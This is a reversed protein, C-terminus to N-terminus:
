PSNRPIVGALKTIAASAGGTAASLLGGAVVGEGVQMLKERTFGDKKTAPQMAGATGGAIGGGAAGVGGKELLSMGAKVEPGVVGGIYNVPSLINGAFRAWDMSTNSGRNQQIEAERQQMQENKGGEPLKRVLGGSHEAVLNNLENLGREVRAPLINAILQGGGEVPDMMGTGIEGATTSKDKTKEAYDKMVKDVVDPQTDDPFEHIMGDASETRIPM